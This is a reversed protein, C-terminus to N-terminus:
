TRAGPHEIEWDLRTKIVSATPTDTQIISKVHLRGTVLLRLRDAFGFHLRVGHCMWGPLTDAGEPEEGLHYRYGLKRWVREAFTPVYMACGNTVTDTM